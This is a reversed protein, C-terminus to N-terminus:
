EQQLATIINDKLARKSLLYIWIVGHILVSSILIILFEGQIRFSPSIMSPFVGILAAVSGCLLGSILLFVNEILVLQFIQKKRFGLATLLAL